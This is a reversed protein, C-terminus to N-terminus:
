NRKLEDLHEKEREKEELLFEIFAVREMQTM